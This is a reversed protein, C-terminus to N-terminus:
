RNVKEWEYRVRVQNPQGQVPEDNILHVPWVTYLGVNQFDVGDVYRYTLTLGGASQESIEAPRQQIEGTQDRRIKFLAGAVLAMNPIASSSACPMVMALAASPNRHIELM